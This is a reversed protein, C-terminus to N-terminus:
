GVVIDNGRHIQCITRPPIKLEKYSIAHESYIYIPKAPNIYNQM